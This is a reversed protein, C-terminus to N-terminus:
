ELDRLGCQPKSPPMAAELVYPSPALPRVAVPVWRKLGQIYEYEAGEETELIWKNELKSFSIRPDSDFDLPETPFSERELTDSM